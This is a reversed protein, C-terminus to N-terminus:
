DDSRQLQAALLSELAKIKRDRASLEAAMLAQDSEDQQQALSHRLTDIMRDRSAIAQQLQTVDESKPSDTASSVSAQQDARDERVVATGRERGALGQRAAPKRAPKDPMRRETQADKQEARQRSRGQSDILRERLRDNDARLRGTDRRLRHLEEASVRIRQWRWCLWGALLGAGFALAMPVVVDWLTWLM